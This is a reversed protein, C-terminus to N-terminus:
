HVKTVRICKFKTFCSVSSSLRTTLLENHGLIKLSCYINVFLSSLFRASVALLLVVVVIELDVLLHICHLWCKAVPFYLLIPGNWRIFYM